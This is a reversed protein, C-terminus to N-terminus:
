DTRIEGRDGRPLIICNDLGGVLALRRGYQERLKMVRQKANM